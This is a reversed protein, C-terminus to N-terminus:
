GATRSAADAYTRPAPSSSGRAPAATLTLHPTLARRLDREVKWEHVILGLLGLGFIAAGSALTLWKVSAGSSGAGTSEIARSCVIAWVSLLALPVDLLRQLAGRGPVAFAVLVVVLACCGAGFSVWRQTATTLTFASLGALAGAAATMLAAYFRARAQLQRAAAADGDRAQLDDRGSKSHNM